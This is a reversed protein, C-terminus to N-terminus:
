NPPTEVPRYFTSSSVLQYFPSCFSKFITGMLYKKLVSPFSCPLSDLAPASSIELIHDPSFVLLFWTILHSFLYFGILTSILHDPSVLLFWTSVLHDPSVLNFDPSCNSVLVFCTILHILCTSWTLCSSVFGLWTWVLDFLFWVLGFSVLGFLFLFYFLPLSGLSRREFVIKSIGARCCKVTQVGTFKQCVEQIIEM